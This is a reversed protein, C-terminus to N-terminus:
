TPDNITWTFSGLNVYDGASVAKSTSTPTALLLESGSVIAIHTITGSTSVPINNIAAFTAQRGGSGAGVTINTGTYDANGLAYTTTAETYNTPQASCLYIKLANNKVYNLASDVANPNVYKGM